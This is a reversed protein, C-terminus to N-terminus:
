ICYFLLSQVTHSRLPRSRTLPLIRKGSTFWGFNSPWTISFSSSNWFDAWNFNLYQRPTDYNVLLRQNCTYQHLLCGKFNTMKACKLGRQGRGQIPDYPMGDCIVWRGRGTENSNSFSKPSQRKIPNVWLFRDLFIAYSASHCPLLLLM